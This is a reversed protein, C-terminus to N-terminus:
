FIILTLFFFLFKNFKYAIENEYDPCPEFGEYDDLGVSKCFNECWGDGNEKHNVYKCTGCAEEGPDYLCRHNNGFTERTSAEKCYECKNGVGRDKECACVWENPNGM